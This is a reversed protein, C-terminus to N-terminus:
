SYSILDMAIKLYKELLKYSLNADYMIRNKNAGNRAAELIAAVLRVRDRNRKM